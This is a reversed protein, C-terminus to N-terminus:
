GTLSKIIPSFRSGVRSGTSSTRGVSNINPKGAIKRFSRTLIAQDAHFIHNKLQLQLIILILM